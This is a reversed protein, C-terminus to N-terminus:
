RIADKGDCGAIAPLQQKDDKDLSMMTMLLGGKPTLLSTEYTHFARVDCFERPAIAGGAAANTTAVAISHVGDAFEHM